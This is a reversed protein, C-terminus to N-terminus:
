RKITSKKTTSATNGAADTVLSTLSVSLPKAKRGAAALKKIAKKGSKTFKLTLTNSGSKVPVTVKALKGLTLAATGPENSTLKLKYGKKLAKALAAIKITRPLKASAVPAVLDGVAAAVDYQLKTGPMTVEANVRDTALLDVIAGDGSDKSFDLITRGAPRARATRTNESPCTYQRCPFASVATTAPADVAVLDVSPDFVATVQPVVYSYTPTAAGQPRYIDFRDGPLAPQAVDTAFFGAGSTTTFLATGGRSQVLKFDPAVSGTLGGLYISFPKATAPAGPEVDNNPSSTVSLCPAEGATYAFYSLEDGADSYASTRVYDGVVLPQKFTTSYSGPTKGIRVSKGGMNGCLAGSDVEILQNAPVAGSVVGSGVTMTTTIAPIVYSETPSVAASPQRVEITDGPALGNISSSYYSTIGLAQTVTFFAPDAGHRVAIGTNKTSDLKGVVLSGYPTAQLSNNPGYATVAYQFTTAAGASAPLLSVAFCSALLALFLKPTRASM